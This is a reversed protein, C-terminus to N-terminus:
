IHYFINYKYRNMTYAMTKYQTKIKETSRLYFYRKSRSENEFISKHESNIKSKIYDTLNTLNSLSNLLDVFFIPKAMNLLTKGKRNHKEMINITLLHFIFGDIYNYLTECSFSSMSFKKEYKSKYIEDNDNTSFFITIKSNENDLNNRTENKYNTLETPNSLYYKFQGKFFDFFCFFTILQDDKAPETVFDNCFIDLKTLNVTARWHNKHMESM